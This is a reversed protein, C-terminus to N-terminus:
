LALFLALVLTLLLLRPRALLLLLLLAPPLVRLTASLTALLTSLLLLARRGVRSRLRLGPGPRFTLGVLLGAALPRGGLRAVTGSLL